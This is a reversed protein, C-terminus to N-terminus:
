RPHHYRFQIETYSIVRDRTVIVHAEGGQSQIWQTYVGELITSFATCWRAQQTEDRALPLAQHHLVIANHSVAMRVFGWGFLNLQQNIHEELEGVTQAVPLPYKEALTVGMQLLFPRSEEEGANDIMADVMITLLDFWGAPTQQHQFWSLLASHENTTTM